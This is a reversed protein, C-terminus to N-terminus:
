HNGGDSNVTTKSHTGASRGSGETSRPWLDATAVDGSLHFWTARIVDSVSKGYSAALWQKLEDVVSHSICAAGDAFIAVTRIWERYARVASPTFWEPHLVPLLDYVIFHFRVGAAKWRALLFPYLPLRRTALDMGLFIDGSSVIVKGVPTDAPRRGMLKAEYVDAYRYRHWDTAYVPRVVYGPPESTRVKSLLARATGVPLLRVLHRPTRLLWRVGALILKVVSM